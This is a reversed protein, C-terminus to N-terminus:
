YSLRCQGVKQTWYMQPLQKEDGVIIANKTCSLALCGALLDVQSSEDIIIYDFMFGNKISNRLSYTTSLVIPFAELFKEMNNQYDEYSFENKKESYKKYLKSKFIKESIQQHEKQLEEFSNINMEKNVKTLEKNLGEIKKKYYEKQLQLITEILHKDLKKLNKIGYKLLLKIKYLWEFRIKGEYLLQSDLLFELIKDATKNYFCLEEIKQLNQEKYYKEFYEQELKYENIEKELIAKKNNKELLDNLQRNLIRMHELLKAEDEINFSKVNPQPLDEFFKKRKEQNGLDAVIFNYGEKELKDKVNKM